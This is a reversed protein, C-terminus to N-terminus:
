KNFKQYDISPDYDNKTKISHLESMPDKSRMLPFLLQVYWTEKLQNWDGFQQPYKKTIKTIGCIIDWIFLLNGFNGNPHSIGDKATLGHHAFHTRPTSITREIVWAIPRLFKYKYMFRDWRTESHALWIVVLKLPLYFLYVEGMGLYVLIASLWIGPMLAYYLLANRYTVLVGMEEIIHHPRHLKWLTRNSHSFRHWGYQTLDDFLLFAGLHWGFFLTIFHNQFSPLFTEMLTIVLFFISPQIITPLITLNLLGITFDNKTRKDDFYLRGLAELAGLILLVVAPILKSSYNLEMLLSTFSLSENIRNDISYGM